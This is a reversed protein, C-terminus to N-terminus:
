EGVGWTCFHSNFPPLSSPPLSPLSLSAPSSHAMYLAPLICFIDCRTAGTQQSLAVNTM